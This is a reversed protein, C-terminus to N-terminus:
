GAGRRVHTRRPRRGRAGDRRTEFRCGHTLRRRPPPGPQQYRQKGAGPRRAPADTLDAIERGQGRPQGVAALPRELEQRDVLHRRVLLRRVRRHARHRDIRNVDAERGHRVEGAFRRKRWLIARPQRADPFRGPDVVGADPPELLRRQSGCAIPEDRLLQAAIGVAGSRERGEQGSLGPPEVVIRDESGHVVPLVAPFPGFPGLRKAAAVGSCERVGAALERPFHDKMLVQLPQRVILPLLGPRLSVAHGQQAVQREHDVAVAGIDPGALVLEAEVGGDARRGIREAGRALVPAQGDIAPVDDRSIIELPQAVAPPPVGLEEVTEADIV